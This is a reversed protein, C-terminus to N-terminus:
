KKEEEPAPVFKGVKELKVNFILTSNPDIGPRGQEGYALDAPVYLEIEGGEGILQLGETWGAVVGNLPFHVADGDEPTEDFVKGDILTGKYKVWVTDQATPKVDNGPEVIKYQLGSDTKQVGEKKLNAALFKEGKEKNALLTYNHRKELYSNFVDNIIEPSIKFQSNFDPDRYDGKAKVYDKMGAIVKSYNVDGFNYGKLFSGFNVGLLYSVSDVEAASPTYDKLTKVAKVPEASGDEGTVPAVPKPTCAVITASMALAFFIKTTKM